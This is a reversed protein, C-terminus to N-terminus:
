GRLAWREISVYKSRKVLSNVLTFERVTWRFTEVMQEEVAGEGRLLTIHPTFSRNVFTGLGAKRMAEGIAHQLAVLEEGGRLVLPRDGPRGSFTHVRDFVVEFPPLVVSSAAERARAVLEPPLSLYAGLDHLTAHLREAAFPKGSLGYDRKLKGALPPMRRAQAQEVSHMFYLHNLM